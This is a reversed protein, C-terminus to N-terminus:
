KRVKVPRLSFTFGDPTRERAELAQQLVDRLEHDFGLPPIDQGLAADLTAADWNHFDFALVCECKKNKFHVDSMYRGSYLRQEEEGWPTYFTFYLTEKWQAAANVILLSQYEEKDPFTQYTVKM